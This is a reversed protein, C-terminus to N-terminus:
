HARVYEFKQLNSVMMTPIYAADFVAREIALLVARKFIFRRPTRTGVILEPVTFPLRTRLAEKKPNRFIDFYWKISFLMAVLASILSVALDLVSGLLYASSITPLM